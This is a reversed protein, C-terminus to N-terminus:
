VQWLVKPEGGASTESITAASANLDVSLAVSQDGKVWNLVFTTPSEKEVNFAGNFAEIQNRIRILEFLNQVVPKQVRQAIDDESFYMRNIDRGVHTENLLAMDNEGALLGHYYVQPIGPAFFQIARAILYLNDDQGLADYFSCNVQYLDLNSAAAGTAQRSEGKSRLHIEEVLQDIAEPELLGPRDNDAGVDIVGIGDHSDLVTICNRPSIEFWTLLPDVNNKLLTNLVLPPLAFDYVRDVRAAIEIQTKYYSHIEVLVEIGRERGQESLQGIFDFTEPLMFCSTGPRKIAYGAADLRISTIGARKFEDLIGLLYAQGQESEVDVDMQQDTFTTWFLRSSGDNLKIKTWPLAPRPRYIKCIDEETAGNPFVSDLSLFLDHHKSKKGNAVVDKFQPSESSVHNVILDAMLDTKASLSKIDDWNGLRPDVQTHDSPDFGADAGDYPTFFPLLHIGGFLDKLPGDLLGNLTQINGKGLRDIYTILQVQNKM